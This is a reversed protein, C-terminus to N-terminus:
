QRELSYLPSGPTRSEDYIEMKDASLPKVFWTHQNMGSQEIYLQYYGDTMKSSLMYTAAPGGIDVRQINKCTGNDYFTRVTGDADKWMGVIDFAGTYAEQTTAQAPAQTPPAAQSPTTTPTQTQAPPETEVPKETEMPPATQVPQTSPSSQPQTSQGCGTMAMAIVLVISVLLINRKM